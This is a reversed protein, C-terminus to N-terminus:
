EPSDARSQAPLTTVTHHVGARPANLADVEDQQEVLRQQSLAEATRRPFPGPTL